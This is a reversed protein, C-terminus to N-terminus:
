AVVRDDEHRAHVQRRQTGDGVGGGGPRTFQLRHGHPDVVVVHLAQLVVPTAVVDRDREGDKVGGVPLHRTGNEVVDATKTATTRSVHDGHENRLVYDPPPPLLQQVVLARQSELRPQEELRAHHHCANRPLQHASGLHTSSGAPVGSTRGHWKKPPTRPPRVACPRWQSRDAWSTQTWRASLATVSSWTAPGVATTRRCTAPRPSPRSSTRPPQGRPPSPSSAPGLCPRMPATASRMSM